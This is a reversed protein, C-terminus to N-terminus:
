EDVLILLEQIEKRIRELTGRQVSPEAASTGERLKKRAGPITFGQTYLLDRIRLIHEVQKRSYLRQGSRTKEPKITGFETEWFRLVSPKVGAIKAVEGIRFYQKEGPIL